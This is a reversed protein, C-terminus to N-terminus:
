LSGDGTTVENPEGTMEVDVVDDDDSDRPLPINVPNIPVVDTNGSTPSEAGGTPKAQEPAEDEGLRAEIPAVIPPQAAPVSATDQKAGLVEQAWSAFTYQVDWQTIGCLAAHQCLDSLSAPYPGEYPLYDLDTASELDLRDLTAQYARPDIFLGALKDMTKAQYVSRARDTHLMRTALYLGELANINPSGDANRRLGKRTAHRYRGYYKQWHEFPHEAAPVTSPQYNRNERNEQQERHYWQPPDAWEIVAAECQSLAQGMSRAKIAARQWQRLAWVAPAGGPSDAKRIVNNLMRMEQPIDGFTNPFREKQYQDFTKRIANGTVGGGGASATPPPITVQSRPGPQEVHRPGAPPLRVAPPPAKEDTMIVDEGMTQPLEAAVGMAKLVRELKIRQRKERDAEDATARAEELAIRLRERVEDLEERLLVHQSLASALKQETAHEGDRFGEDYAADHQQYKSRDESRNTYRSSSPSVERRKNGRYPPKNWGAGGAIEAPRMRTSGASGNGSSDSGEMGYNKTPSRQYPIAPKM